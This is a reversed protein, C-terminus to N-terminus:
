RPLETPQSLSRSANNYLESLAPRVTRPIKAGTVRKPGCEAEGDSRTTSIV